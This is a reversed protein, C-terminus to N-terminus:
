SKGVIFLEVMLGELLIDGGRLDDLTIFDRPSVYRCVWDLLVSLDAWLGCLCGDPDEPDCSGSGSLSSGTRPTWAPQSRHKVNCDIRQSTKKTRRQKIQKDAKQNGNRACTNTETQKGIARDQKKQNSKRAHREGDGFAHM